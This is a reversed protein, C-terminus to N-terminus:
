CLDVLALAAQRMGDLWGQFKNEMRQSIHGSPKPLYKSTVNRPPLDHVAGNDPLQFLQYAV